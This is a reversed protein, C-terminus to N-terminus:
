STDDRFQHILIKTVTDFMLATSNIMKSERFFWLQSSKCNHEFCICAMAIKARNFSELRAYCKKQDKTHLQCSTFDRKECAVVKAKTNNHLRRQTSLAHNIDPVNVEQNLSIEYNM